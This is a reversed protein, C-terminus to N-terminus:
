MNVIKKISCLVRNENLFVRYPLGLKILERNIVHVRELSGDLVHGTYSEGGVRKLKDITAILTAPWNQSGLREWDKQSLETRETNAGVLQRLNIVRRQNVASRRLDYLQKHEAYIVKELNLKWSGHSFAGFYARRGCDLM